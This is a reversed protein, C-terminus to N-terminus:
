TTSSATACPSCATTCTSAAAPTTRSSRCTTASARAARRAASVDVYGHEENITHLDAGPLGVIAGNGGDPHSDSTFTKSGADIVIQGPVADSIVTM